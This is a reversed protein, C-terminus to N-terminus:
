SSGRGFGAKGGVGPRSPVMMGVSSMNGGLIMQPMGGNQVGASPSRPIPAVTPAPNVETVLPQKLLNMIRNFEHEASISENKMLGSKNMFENSVGTISSIGNM